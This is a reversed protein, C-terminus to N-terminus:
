EVSEWFEIYEEHNVVIIIDNSDNIILLDEASPHWIDFLFDSLIKRPVKFGIRDFAWYINILDSIGYRDLLPALVESIEDESYHAISTSFSKKYKPPSKRLAESIKMVQAGADDILAKSLELDQALPKIRSEFFAINKHRSRRSM